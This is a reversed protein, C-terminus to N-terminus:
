HDTTDKVTLLQLPMSNIKRKRSSLNCSYLVNQNSTKLEMLDRPM